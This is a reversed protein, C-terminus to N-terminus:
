VNPTQKRAKLKLMRQGRGQDYRRRMEAVDMRWIHELLALAFFLVTVCAILLAPVFFVGLGASM